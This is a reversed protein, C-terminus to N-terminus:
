FTWLLGAMELPWALWPKYRVEKLDMIIDDKRWLWTCCGSRFSAASRAYSVATEKRSGNTMISVRQEVAEKMM